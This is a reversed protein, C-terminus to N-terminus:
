LAPSIASGLAISRSLVYYGAVDIGVALTPKANRAHANPDVFEVRPDTISIGADTGFGLAIQARVSPAYAFSVLAVVSAFAIKM